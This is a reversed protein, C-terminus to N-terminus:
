APAANAPHARQLADVFADLDGVTVDLHPSIRLVTEAPQLPSRWSEACTTVFGNRLLHARVHWVDIDADTAPRLTTTASPEDSPEVVTWGDVASVQTRLHGGIASLGAHVSVPGLDLIQRLAVGFGLRAAVAAEASELEAPAPLDAVLPPAAPSRRVSLFGVGRPGAAWKRSTGYVIDAGTRSDIQVLAQAADVVTVVGAARALAVLEAAPQVIGTRSGIHCIHLVDPPRKLLMAETAAVDVHGFEDAVPLTTVTHGHHAFDAVNPGYETPCVWISLPRRWHRLLERIAAQASGVLAVDGHDHGILTAVAAHTAALDDARAAAAVYGGHAAEAHLHETITDIVARSSRGAAASDLHVGAAPVRLSDWQAGITSLHM